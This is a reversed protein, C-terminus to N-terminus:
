FRVECNGVIPFVLMAPSCVHSTPDASAGSAIPGYLSTHNYIKVFCKSLLEKCIYFLFM